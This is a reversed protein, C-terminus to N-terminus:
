SPAGGAQGAGLRGLRLVQPGANHSLMAHMIDRSHSCRVKASGVTHAKKPRLGGYKAM